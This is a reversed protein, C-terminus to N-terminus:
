FIRFVSKEAQEGASNCEEPPLLRPCSTRWGCWGAVHGGLTRRRHNPVAVARRLGAVITIRAVFRFDVASLPTNSMNFTRRLLAGAQDDARDAVFAGDLGVSWAATGSEILWNRRFDEEAAGRAQANLISLPWLMTETILRSRIEFPRSRLERVGSSTAVRAEITYRGAERLDTFDAALFQM